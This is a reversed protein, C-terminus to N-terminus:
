DIIYLVRDIVETLLVSLEFNCEGSLTVVFEDADKSFPFNIIFFSERNGWHQWLSIPRM